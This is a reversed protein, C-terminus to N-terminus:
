MCVYMLIHVLLVAELRDKILCMQMDMGHKHVISRKDKHLEGMHMYVHVYILVYMCSYMCTQACMCVYVFYSLSVRIYMDVYWGLQQTNTGAAFLVCVCVYM